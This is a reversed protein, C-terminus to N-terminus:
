DGLKVLLHRMIDESIRLNAELERSSAPKAKFRSLAYNGEVFRKIPYALKKKGWREVESIVGGRETIFRNVNEIITNYREEAVEPNIILVLEYDCLQEGEVKVEKQSVM